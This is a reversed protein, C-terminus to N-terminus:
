RRPFLGSNLCSVADQKTQFAVVALAAVDLRAATASRSWLALDPVRGPCLSLNGFHRFQNPPMDLAGSVGQAGDLNLRVPTDSRVILKTVLWTGPAIPAPRTIPRGANRKLLLRKIGGNGPLVEIGPENAFDASLDSHTETLQVADAWADTFGHPLPMEFWPTRLGTPRTVDAIDQCIGPITGEGARAGRHVITSGGDSQALRLADLACNETRVAADRLDLRGPPTDVLRIPSSCNRAYIFAPRAVVTSTQVSAALATQENWNNELLIGPTAGAAGFSAIFLVHGNAREFVNDRLVVQGSDVQPSDLYLLAQEFGSFHSRELSVVGGHMIDGPSPSHGRTWVHVNAEAFTCNDVRLGINGFPRSISRDFGSFAVRLLSTRGVYEDGRAYSDGGHQLGVGQRGTGRLGLDAILVPDWGGDRYMARLVPQNTLASRLVTARMGSGVLYVNRSTLRLNVRFLGPPLGLVGGGASVLKDYARQLTVSEDADGGRLDATVTPKPASVQATAAAGAGGAAAALM